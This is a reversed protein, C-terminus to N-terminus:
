VQLLFSRWAQEALIDVQAYYEGLLNLQQQV